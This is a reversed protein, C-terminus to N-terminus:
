DIRRIATARDPDVAQSGTGAGRRALSELREGTVFARALGGRVTPGAIACKSLYHIGFTILLLGFVYASQDHLRGSGLGIAIVVIVVAYMAMTWWWQGYGGPLVYNRPVTTFEHAGEQMLSRALRLISLNAVAVLGAGVACTWPWLAPTKQVALVVTPLAVLPMLRLSIERSARGGSGSAVSPLRALITQYFKAAVAGQSFGILMAAVAAKTHTEPHEGPLFDKFSFLACVTFTYAWAAAAM